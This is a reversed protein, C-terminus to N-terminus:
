RLGIVDACYLGQPGFAIHCTISSGLAPEALHTRLSVFFFEVPAFGSPSYKQRQVRGSGWGYMEVPIAM